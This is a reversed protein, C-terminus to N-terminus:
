LPSSRFPYKWEVVSISLKRIPNSTTLCFLSRSARINFSAGGSKGANPRRKIASAAAARGAITAAALATAWGSSLPHRCADDGDGTASKGDAATDGGSLSPFVFLTTPDQIAHTSSSPLQCVDDTTTSSTPQIPLVDGPPVDLKVSVDAMSKVDQRDGDSALQPDKSTSNVTSTSSSSLTSSLAQQHHPEVDTFM